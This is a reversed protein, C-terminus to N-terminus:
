LNRYHQYGALTPDDVDEDRMAQEILISVQPMSMDEAQLSRLREYTEARLVVYERRTEPDTVRLPRLLRQWHRESNAISNTCPEESGM